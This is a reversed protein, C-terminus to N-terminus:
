RQRPFEVRFEGARLSLVLTYVRSGPLPSNESFIETAPSAAGTSCCRLEVVLYVGTCTASGAAFSLAGEFGSVLNVLPGARACARRRSNAVGFYLRVYLLAYLASFERVRPFVRGSSRVM